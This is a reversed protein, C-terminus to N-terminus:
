CGGKLVVQSLISPNVITVSYSFSPPMLAYGGKIVVEQVGLMSRLKSFKAETLSKTFIEAVQDEIPCFLVEIIQDHILKRIFHM